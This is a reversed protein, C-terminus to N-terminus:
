MNYSIEYPLSYVAYLCDHYETHYSKSLSLYLVHVNFLVSDKM